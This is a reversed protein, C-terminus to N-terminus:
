MRLHQTNLSWCISKLLCSAAWLLFYSMKGPTQLVLSCPDERFYFIIKGSGLKNPNKKKKSLRVAKPSSFDGVGAEKLRQTGAPPPPITHPPNYLSNAFTMAWPCLSM